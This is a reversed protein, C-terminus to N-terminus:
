AATGFLALAREVKIAASAELPALAIEPVAVGEITRAPLPDSPMREPVRDLAVSLVVPCTLRTPANVIGLGRMEIRGAITAPSRAILRGDEASLEVQDDAVLMAGRDILRLALDSKGAGSAGTLLVARDGIAVCTAHLRTL